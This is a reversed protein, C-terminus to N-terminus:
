ARPLGLGRTAVINRQVESTGGAITSSLTQMYSQPARGRMPAKGGLLLGNTGTMKMATRAIRQSLETNFLKAISAEHNPVRGNSQITIVVYSLMKAVAAEIWRDAFEDKAKTSASGTAATGQNEKWFKMYYELTQRQGVANGISSREFDLTTTGIYWGRNIEGLVNRAPVRVDEFFVENFMHGGALNILPRVTVGPSKMDMLFYTIGRHKPADPDTRALMFMRDANHAGSTWIKQGNIVFDDGDRVARTQLSALDSGSGPESYGQCWQVEGRLIAGLHEQKQEDNGHIIITPGIMSTGMGGVNMARAEAFEENMIFQEMVGLGAGGYEKPWAPAVWGKASLKGRWEKMMSRGREMMEQPTADPDSKPKEAALFTAVEKRWEAQSANDNFDM